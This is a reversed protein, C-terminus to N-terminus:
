KSCAEARYFAVKEDPSTLNYIDVSCEHGGGTSHDVTVQYEVGPKPIWTFAFECTYITTGSDVESEYQQTVPKGAPVRVESTAFYDPGKGRIGLKRGNFSAGGIATDTVVVGAGSERAICNRAPILNLSARSNVSFRVLAIPGETPERFDFYQACGTVGVIAAALIVIRM